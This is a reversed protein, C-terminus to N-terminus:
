KNTKIMGINSLVTGLPSVCAIVDYNYKMGDFIMDKARGSLKDIDIDVGNALFREHSVGNSDNIFMFQSDFTLNVMRGGNSLAQCTSNLVDLTLGEEDAHAANLGCAVFFSALILKKFM